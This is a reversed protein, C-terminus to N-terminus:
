HEDVNEGLFKTEDMGINIFADELSNIELAIFVDPDKELDAFLTSFCDKNEFPIM